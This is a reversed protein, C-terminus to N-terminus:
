LVGSYGLWQSVVARFSGSVSNVHVVSESFRVKTHFEMEMEGNHNLSAPQCMALNPLATRAALPSSGRASGGSAVGAGWASLGLEVPRPLPIFASVCVATTVVDQIDIPAM